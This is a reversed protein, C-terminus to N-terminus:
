ALMSTVPLDADYELHHSGRTNLIERTVLQRPAQRKQVRRGSLSIFSASIPVLKNM